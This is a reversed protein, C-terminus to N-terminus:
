RSIYGERQRFFFRQRCLQHKRDPPEFYVLAHYNRKRYNNRRRYKCHHKTKNHPQTVPVATVVSELLLTNM